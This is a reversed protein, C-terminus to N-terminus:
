KFNKTVNPYTKYFTLIKYKILNIRCKFVKGDEGHMHLTIIGEVQEFTFNKCQGQQQDSVHFPKKSVSGTTKVQM